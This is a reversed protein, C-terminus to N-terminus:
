EKKELSSNFDCGAAEYTLFCYEEQVAHDAVGHPPMDRGTSKFDLISQSEKLPSLNGPEYKCTDVDSAEKKKSGGVNSTHM